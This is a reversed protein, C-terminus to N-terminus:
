FEILNLEKQITEQFGCQELVRKSAAKSLLTFLETNESLEIIQQAMKKYDEEDVLIGCNEDVFEPIAAVNNTIPVLGSAMAEGRSVGQSDMRTPVLFVGNQKHIQVIQQQTLFGKNLSVNSYQRLPEITEEFLPGDGVITFKLKDFEPHKSLEQIVKVTIDNAYTKSSFPRISLINRADEKSKEEYKFFDTDVLNHIIQYKFDDNGDCIDDVFENKAYHSVFILNLNKHKKNILSRWFQRRHDSLKKKRLVESESLNELEYSRRQWVQAESGHVWVHVELDDIFEEIVSWMNKDLIHILVKKVHSSHLVERLNNANGTFVDISEFESFGFKSNDLSIRFMDVVKDHQKYSRLRSHLFGYKYLDDYSPYQKALVLTDSKTILNNTPERSEGIVMKSISAEGAGTVKFGLKVYKCNPPIPMTQGHDARFMCHSLKEKNSDLFVFVARLDLSQESEINVQSNTKLNVDSRDYIERFYIYAHKGEPLTSRIYADLGKKSIQIQKSKPRILLGSIEPGDFVKSNPDLFVKDLSAYEGLFEVYVLNNLEISSVGQLRVSFKVYQTNPPMGDLLVHQACGVIKNGLKSLNQSMFEFVFEIKGNAKMEGMNLKLCEKGACNLESIIEVYRHQKKEFKSSLQIKKNNNKILISRHANEMIKDFQLYVQYANKQNTKIAEAAPLLKTGLSIGCDVIDFNMIENCQDNSLADSNNAYSFCDISFAKVSLKASRIEQKTKSLLNLLNEIEFLSKNTHAVEVFQYEKGDIYSLENEKNQHYADKTVAKCDYHKLYSFSALMDYLYYPGYLDNADFVALHSCDDKSLEKFFEDQGSCVVINSKDSINLGDINDSVIYLNKDDLVQNNYCKYVKDFEDQTDCFSVVAVAHVDFEKNISAKQLIYNLRHEYTHEALVKRLGQLKYKKFKTKTAIVGEFQRKLENPNDSCIVLDGFLLRVGRSYNSLVLTNSALMEFVRRAFMTQSQKITNMNIGYEYGKYARDIEEPLLSGLIFPKYEDPFEYHPHPKHYNRDYIDLGKTEIAIESLSKFDKQRVPYKLYYSGAFNFKDKRNYLEVPNHTKPQAAFPLLYVDNHGVHNKYKIICDIDTTFVTDVLKALEIFTGFHVPDEKSWFITRIGNSKCYHILELLEISQQSVKLKWLGDKGQWASEIFLMQPKFGDVEKKWNQPTLQLIDAEPAFCLSTFEDMIAAIRVLDNKKIEISAVESKIINKKAVEINAINTRKNILPSPTIDKVIHTQNAIDSSGFKYSEILEKDLSVFLLRKLLSLEDLSQHKRKLSQLYLDLLGRSANLFTLKGKSVEIMIKGLQFSITQNQSSSFKSALESKLYRNKAKLMNKENEADSIKENLVKELLKIDHEDLEINKLVLEKRLNFRM